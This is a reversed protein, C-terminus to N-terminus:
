SVDKVTCNTLHRGCNDSTSILKFQTELIKDKNDQLGLKVQGM